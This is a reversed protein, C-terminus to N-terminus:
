PKACPVRMIRWSHATSGDGPPLYRCRDHQINKHLKQTRRRRTYLHWCLIRGRTRTYTLRICFTMAYNHCVSVCIEMSGGIIGGIAHLQTRLGGRMTGRPKGVYRPGGVAERSDLHQRANRSASIPGPKITRAGGNLDCRRGVASLPGPADQSEEHVGVQRAYIMDREGPLSVHRTAGFVEVLVCATLESSGGRKCCSEIGDRDMEREREREPSLVPAPLAGLIVFPYSIRLPLPGWLYFLLRLLPLFGELPARRSRRIPVVSQPFVLPYM